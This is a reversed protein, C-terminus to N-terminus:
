LCTNELLPAKERELAHGKETMDKEAGGGGGNTPQHETGALIVDEKITHPNRKPGQISSPASQLSFNKLEYWYM